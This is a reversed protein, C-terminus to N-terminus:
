LIFAIQEAWVQFQNALNPPLLGNLRNKDNPDREVRVGTKFGALDEMWGATVWDGALAILENRVTKPTIAGSGAAVPTGDDVLSCNPFKLAIRQRSSYRMEALTLPTNVDLFSRDPVGGATKQYMTIARDIVVNGSADVKSTAIGEHLLLERESRMFQDGDAPPMIGPLPRERFPRAPNIAGYYSVVGGWAAAREWQPSPCKNIGFCEVYQSNRPTGYTALAGQTGSESVFALPDLQRLPGWRDALEAELATMNAADTYAMVIADFRMDGFQAFLGSISPNTTGGFMATVTATLGQPLTEGAYFNVRVDIDNGVEGKFGAKATLTVTGNNAQAEVPVDPVANVADALNSAVVTNSDSAAVPSTIRQGAVYAYITGAATQAGGIVITGSAAVAAGDDALGVVWLEFGPNAAIFSKAMRTLMSAFGWRAEADGTSFIQVPAVAASHSGILLARRARGPLGSVAQSSNIESYTGPELIDSPISDFAITM